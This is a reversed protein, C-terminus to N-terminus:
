KRKPEVKLHELGNYRDYLETFYNETLKTVQRQDAVTNGESYEIGINQIGLHEKGGLEKTKMCILDHRETRQLAVIGDCMSGTHEKKTEETARKLEDRLKRYNRRKFNNFKKRRRIEDIKNIM